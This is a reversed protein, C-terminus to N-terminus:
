KRDKRLESPDRAPEAAEKGSLLQQQTMWQWGHGRRQSAIIHQVLEDKKTPDYGLASWYDRSIADQQGMRMSEIVSFLSLWRYQESGPYVEKKKASYSSIGFAIERCCGGSILSLAAVEL